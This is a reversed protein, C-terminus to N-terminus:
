KCLMSNNTNMNFIIFFLNLNSSIKGINLNVYGLGWYTKADNLKTAVAFFRYATKKVTVTHLIKVARPTTPSMAM